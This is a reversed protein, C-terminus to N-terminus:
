LSKEEKDTLVSDCLRVCRVYYKYRVGSWDVDGDSFDVVWSEGSSGRLDSSWCWSQKSDFVPDIFLGNSKKKELLTMLEPITPLRWDDYLAKKELNLQKIYQQVDKYLMGRNSGYKQWMLGTTHDIIVDNLVEFQNERYLLPRRDNTLEFYNIFDNETVKKPKNCPLLRIKCNPLDFRLKTYLIISICSNIFDMRELMKLGKFLITKEETKDWETIKLYTIKSLTKANLKVIPRLRGDELCFEGSLRCTNFFPITLNERIMEIFFSEAQEMGEFDKIEKRFDSDYFAKEALFYELISKHSFKYDGKANRNLLSKSKMEMLNLKINYKEAFLQIDEAPILLSGKRKSRQQYINVAIARSFKWLEKAYENKKSAPFKNAERKIWKDILTNYIMNTSLYLSEDQILDDIHSLLMPRVMLSPSSMIIHQAKRRKSFQYWVFRKHLYTRIDKKDFPSIYFKRFTREGGKPGSLLIGTEGPVEEESPFFQTRCTFVVERFHIVKRILEELRANYDQVAYIDEDFADLLLITQHKENDSIAEIEKDIDPFNLPFLKILYKNRRYQNIYRLYLNIMFTTKGMGSDALVIYFQCCDQDMNFAKNLFFPIIYEKASFAYTGGPEDERSPAVNQCKTEIYCSTAEKIENGTYFPHLDHLLKREHKISLIKNFIKKILTFGGGLLSILTATYTIIDIGRRENLWDVIQFIEIM